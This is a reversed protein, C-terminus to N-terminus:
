EGLRPSTSVRPHAMEYYRLVERATEEVARNDTRIVIAGLRRMLARAEDLDRRISEPDAYDAAIGLANGLRRRRIGVLVEPTTVLGFLRTPDVGFLQAPPDTYLDLPVNAVKYGEQAIYISTPTKSSRSVGLLVIDAKTLDQPNRGDDHAITFEIADIRRYYAEDTARLEGPERMPALGSARAIAHMAPTMLDVGAIGPHVALYEQLEDYVEGEVLTYFLVTVPEDHSSAHMHMGLERAQEVQAEDLFERIEVFAKVNSLVKITPETVGFQSAAARALSHATIGVSDSVVYLTPVAGSGERAVM